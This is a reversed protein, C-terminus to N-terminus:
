AREGDTRLHAASLLARLRDMEAHLIRQGLSTIAYTKRPRGSEDSEPDEGAREIWGDVLLRKLTTYLTSASLIVREESTKQVDKAIAYGHLPGAALSLLIYFTAESLSHSTQKDKGM